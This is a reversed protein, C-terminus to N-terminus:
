DPHPYYSIDALHLLDSQQVFQFSKIVPVRSGIRQTHCRSNAGASGPYQSMEILYTFVIIAPQHGAIQLKIGINARFPMMLIGECQQRSGISGIM